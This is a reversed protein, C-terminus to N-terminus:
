LFIVLDKTDMSKLSPLFEGEFRLEGYPNDEIVPIEYKNILEMFKQRRELTWTKGTPNQFDPIVYIMKVNETTALIKDLEEPIMGADDTPVEVFTPECAKFANIAGLYSPSEVLVVDGPNLFVRASFDLGQQSGSTILIDDISVHIDNKAAMRAVIKERLSAFGDTGTYQLAVRGMNDMVKCAAEKVGETPFLEPAPMGGAFSIVEPKATLALLARIESGKLLNMRNAFKVAM